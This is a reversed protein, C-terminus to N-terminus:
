LGADGLKELVLWYSHYKRAHRQRLVPNYAPGYTRYRVLIDKAYFGRARAWQWVHCHTLTTKSDTYDQTKFAVIGGPRLVRYFENLAGKYTRELEEWSKFMTFRGAAANKTLATGHPSYMFPPDFVISDLSRSKVPLATVNAQETDLDQPDIDFRLRPKPVVGSKYFSGRSYCVDADFPFGANHLKIIGNLIEDDTLAISKVVM